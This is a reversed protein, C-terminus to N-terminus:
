DYGDYTRRQKTNLASGQDLKLRMETAPVFGLDMLEMMFLRLAVCFDSASLTDVPYTFPCTTSVCIFAYYATKGDWSAPRITGSPDCYFVTCPPISAYVSTDIQGFTPARM